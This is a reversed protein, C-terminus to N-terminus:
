LYDDVVEYGTWVLLHYVVLYRLPNQSYSIEIMLPRIIEFDFAIIVM